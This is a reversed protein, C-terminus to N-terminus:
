LCDFNILNILCIKRNSESYTLFLFLSKLQKTLRSPKLFSPDMKRLESLPYRKLKVQSYFLHSPTNFEKDQFSKQDPMFCLLRFLM